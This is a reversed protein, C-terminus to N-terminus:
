EGLQALAQELDQVLDEPNELGCHLRVIWREEPYDSPCVPQPVVLSEHGGWSIGRKFLRLADCFAFIRTKDQVKPEFSFIGGSGKLMKLFLERQPYSPLGLHHVRAVEPREELWAAVRNGAEEHHRMRLPLTRMGRLLLWASFPHLVSGFFGLEQAVIREMRERTGCIAGAMLDSHGGLYKTASHCVLDIGLAHPTFHLPTNYTNDLITTIGRERALRAIAEVDQLRFLLSSPTELYILRTEPRLASEIKELCLGDVFSHAVGFKALYDRLFKRVPGYCTDVAVVHDGASVHASIAITMAAMGTGTLKCSETGELAALKRECIELTPNSFRSYHHPAEGPRNDMQDLLEETSEFVFTSNQFIPPVVAGLIAEDEAFHTLLTSPDM